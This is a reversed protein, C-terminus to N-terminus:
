SGIIKEREEQFKLWLAEADSLEDAAKALELVLPGTNGDISETIKRNLEAIKEEAAIVQNQAKEIKRDIEKILKTAGPKRDTKQILPVEPKSKEGASNNVSKEVSKGALHPALLEQQLRWVYDEYTGPYVNCSSDKVEVIKTAVRGIFGRDHSVVVLSGSYKKLAQTLAEVTQFDLHNTPEDLLLFPVKQLLIQGLAVRSKEGGSLVKVKKEIQDSGFLLSGAMNRIEQPTTSLNSGSDLAEYVTQNPNLIEVVHQNFIALSVQYGLERTGTQPTLSGAMNKLLTSKGAGNPGVIAIHEGRKIELNVNKVVTRDVYGLNADTLKLIMRGVHSPEPIKIAAKIPAEKLNISEMKELSKLKSQAQKAKTAKAGFRLVFDMVAKKKLAQNQAQAELQSRLLEKQEFYDDINGSYKTVDGAEVELTYETTRRLVERDHSILLYAGAFDQLFQELLLTTELDLYNTPEDLLMLNPNMGLLAILKIRMRYGGSLSSIPKAYISEDIQMRRGISKVEWIPLTCTRELYSNGTESETWHDHQSLYGLRLSNSKVIRGTDLDEDGILIKFLTSKGAGNPGIVGVHEGENISFTTDQLILQAGFSKSGNQVQILNPMIQPISNSMFKAM